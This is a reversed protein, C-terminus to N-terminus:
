AQRLLYLMNACAVLHSVDSKTGLPEICRPGHKHKQVVADSDWCSLRLYHEFSHRGDCSPSLSAQRYPSVDNGYLGRGDFVQCRCEDSKACM